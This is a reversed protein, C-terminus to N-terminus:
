EPAQFLKTTWNEPLKKFLNDLTQFEVNYGGNKVPLGNGIIEIKYECFLREITQHEENTFKGSFILSNKKPILSKIENLEYVHKDDATASTILFKNSKKHHHISFVPM